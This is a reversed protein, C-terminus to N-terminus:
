DFMDHSAEKIERLSIQIKVFDPTLSSVEPDVMFDGGKPLLSGIQM